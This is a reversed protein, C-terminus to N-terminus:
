ASVQECVHRFHEAFSGYENIAAEALKQGDSSGAHGKVKSRIAQVTRLGTLAVQRGGGEYYAILRELLKLSQEKPDYAIDVQELVSRVFKVEFGEIVLQSLDM